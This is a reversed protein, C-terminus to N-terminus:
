SATGPTFINLGDDHAVTGQAGMYDNTVMDALLDPDEATNAICRSGDELIAMVIAYSPGARDHMVTYTEIRGAGNAAEVSTRGKDANLAAQYLSPDKPAFPKDPVATSYIGM